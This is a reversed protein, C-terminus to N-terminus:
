LARNQQGRAKILVSQWLPLHPFQRSSASKKRHVIAKRGHMYGRSFTKPAKSLSHANKVAFSFLPSHLLLETHTETAWSQVISTLKECQERIKKGWKKILCGTVNWSHGVGHFDAIHVRTPSTIVCINRTNICKGCSEQLGQTIIKKPLSFQILMLWSFTAFDQLKTPWAAQGPAASHLKVNKTM